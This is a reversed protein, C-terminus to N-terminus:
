LDEKDSREYRAYLPSLGAKRLVKKRSHYNESFLTTHCLRSWTENIPLLRYVGALHCPRRVDILTLESGLYIPVLFEADKMEVLVSGLRLGPRRNSFVQRDLRVDSTRNISM